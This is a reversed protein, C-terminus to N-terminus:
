LILIWIELNGVMLFCGTMNPRYAKSMTTKLLLECLLARGRKARVFGPTNGSQKHGVRDARRM